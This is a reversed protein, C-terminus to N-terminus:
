FPIEDDPLSNPIEVPISAVKQKAILEREWKMIEEARSALEWIQTNPVYSLIALRMAQEYTM